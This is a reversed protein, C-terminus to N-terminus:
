SPLLLAIEAATLARRYVRFDDILGTAYPFTDNPPRVLYSSPAVGLDGPHFTMAPNSGALTGDIFVQGAYPIGAPLVVALHHWESVPLKTTTEILQETATGNTRIVFRVHSATDITTLSMSRDVSTGVDFIRQWRDTSSFNVWASITIAQPALLALYPMKVYGGGALGNGTFSVAHTGVKHTATFAVAAKSGATGLAASSSAGAGPASNAAVTGSTEDFKYWIILDPDQNPSFTIGGAGGLGGRGGSAGSDNGRGGQGGLPTAPEGAQGGTALVTVPTGAAGGSGAGGGQGPLGGSGSAGGSGLLVGLVGGTAVPSPRGGTATGAVSADRAVGELARYDYTCGTSSSGATYLVAFLITIAGSGHCRGGRISQRSGAESVDIPNKM